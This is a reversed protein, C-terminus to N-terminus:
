LGLFSKLFYHTLLERPVTWTAIAENREHTHKNIVTFYSTFFLYKAWWSSASPLTALPATPTNSLAPSRIDGYLCANSKIQASCGHLEAKDWGAKDLLLASAGCRLDEQHWLIMREVRARSANSNELWTGKWWRSVERMDLPGRQM